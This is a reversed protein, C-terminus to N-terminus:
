TRSRDHTTAARLRAGKAQKARASVTKLDEGVKPYPSYGIARGRRTAIETALRDHVLRPLCRFFEFGASRLGVNERVASVLAAAQDRRGSVRHKFAFVLFRVSWRRCAFEAVESSVASPEAAAADRWVRYYVSQPTDGWNHTHGGHIRLYTLCKPLYCLDSTALMKFWLAIDSAPQYQPDFGGAERLADTRLLTCTPMGVANFGVASEHVATERSVLPGAGLRPIEEAFVAGAEDILWGGTTAISVEPHADLLPVMQELFDVALWDDAMLFKIHRGRALEICRNFNAFMGRNVDNALFRVRPDELFPAVVKETDDSSVDDAVILEFDEFTQDLVSAIAGGLYHAYNYTPICVTVAPSNM